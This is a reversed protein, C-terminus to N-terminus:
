RSREGAEAALNAEAEPWLQPFLVPLAELPAAFRVPGQKSDSALLRRALLAALVRDASRAPLGMMSKFEGRELPGAVFLHHLAGVAEIKIGSARETQALALYRALRNRMGDFAVLGGMFRVQDICIELVYRIWEVLAAQSLAGRGDLDGARPADANALLAYYREQTRAFGRLPSWLGGTLAAGHLALHTQLRAVRGNGDRFPHIWALRHHAAAIAIVAREGSPERRYVDAWRELFLPVAAAPPAIHAGVQVARTRLEGPEVIDGAETTREGESLRAYLRRHLSRVIEASFARRWGDRGVAPVDDHESEVEADIHALALRQLRARGPDRDFQGAVAREIERPLTHEGEIRNSYYSNMERLLPALAYRASDRAGGALRTAADILDGALGHLAGAVHPAPLLPEFQGVHPVIPPRRAASEVRAEAPANAARKAHAKAPMKAFKM